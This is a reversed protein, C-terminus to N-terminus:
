FWSLIGFIIIANKVLQLKIPLNLIFHDCLIFLFHCFQMANGSILFFIYNVGLDNVLNFGFNGLIVIFAYQLESILSVILWDENLWYSLLVLIM